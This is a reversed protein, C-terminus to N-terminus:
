SNQQLWFAACAQVASTNLGASTSFFFNEGQSILNALAKEFEAATVADIKGKVSVVVTNKEKATQIEM